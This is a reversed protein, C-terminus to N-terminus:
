VRGKGASVILPNFTGLGLFLALYWTVTCDQEFMSALGNQGVRPVKLGEILLRWTPVGTQLVQDVRQLWGALMHCLHGYKTIYLITHQHSMVFNMVVCM